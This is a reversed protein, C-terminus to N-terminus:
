DSQGRLHAPGVRECEERLQPFNCVFSTARPCFVPTLVCVAMCLASVAEVSDKGGRSLKRGGAILPRAQGM